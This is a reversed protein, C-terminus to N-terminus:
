YLKCNISDRSLTAEKACYAAHWDWLRFTKLKFRLSPLAFSQAERTARITFFRGAICSVQTQDRSWSSERAFPITVWELIRAQFIGHVYSGSPSCCPTAFIQFHSLSLHKWKKVTLIGWLLLFSLCYSIFFFFLFDQQDACRNMILVKIHCVFM